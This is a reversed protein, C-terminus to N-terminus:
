NTLIHRRVKATGVTQSTGTKGQIHLLLVNHLINHHQEVSYLKKINYLTQSRYLSPIPTGLGRAEIRKGTLRQIVLWDGVTEIAEKVQEEATLQGMTLHSSTNILAEDPYQLQASQASEIPQEERATSGQNM